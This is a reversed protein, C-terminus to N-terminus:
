PRPKEPDVKRRLFAPIDADSIGRLSDPLSFVPQSAERELVSFAQLKVVNEVPSSLLRVSRMARRTLKPELVTELTLWELLVGWAMEPSGVLQVLEALLRHIAAM